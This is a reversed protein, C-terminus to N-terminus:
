ELQRWPGLFVFLLQFRPGFDLRLYKFIKLAIYKKIFCVFLLSIYSKNSCLVVFSDYIASSSNVVPVQGFKIVLLYSISNVEPKINVFVAEDLRAITLTFTTLQNTLTFNLSNANIYQFSPLDAAAASDRSIWFDLSKKFLFGKRNPGDLRRTPNKVSRNM